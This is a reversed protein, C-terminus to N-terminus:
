KIFRLARTPHCSTRREPRSISMTPECPCWSPDTRVTQQAFAQGEDKKEPRHIKIQPLMFPRSV